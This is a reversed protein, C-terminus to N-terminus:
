RLGRGFPSSTAGSEDEEEGRSLSEKRKGLSLAPTLAEKKKGREGPSLAPTLAERLGRLRRRWERQKALAICYGM